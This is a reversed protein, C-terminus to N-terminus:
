TTKRCFAGTWWINKEWVDWYILKVLRSPITKIAAICRNKEKQIEFSGKRRTYKRPNTPTYQEIQSLRWKQRDFKLLVNPSNFSSLETYISHYIMRLIPQTEVHPDISGHSRIDPCFHCSFSGEWSSPRANQHLIRSTIKSQVFRILVLKFSTKQHDGVSAFSKKEEPFGEFTCYMPMLNSAM